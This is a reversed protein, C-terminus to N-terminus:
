RDRESLYGVLHDRFNELFEPINEQLIGKLKTQQALIPIHLIVPLRRM